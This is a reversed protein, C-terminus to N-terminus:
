VAGPVPEARWRAVTRRLQFYAIIGPVTPLWFAFARYTLVSVLALSSPVGFALCTGIMGGDVGGVGGPLPLLNGLMGVFYIMVLVAIPPPSGFAHFSAWLVGIQTAWYLAAGGVAKDPHRAHQAAHRIGASATAPVTAFRSLTRSVRGGKGKDHWAQMRRQLDTPTLAVLGGLTLAVIGFIAPVVTVGFPAEGPFIGARLGLGFVVLAAVYMAYQVAIFTITRDAVMGRSMGSRRMAWAQLALGGAGAAAFLRTAALAAMTVQYAEWATLRRPAGPGFVGVFQVVYGGFSAIVFAAAAGLWWPDGDEIRKWTDELGSIQPLVFVFFAVVSIVFLVGFAVMKRSIHVRPMEEDDLAERELEVLAEESWPKLDQDRRADHVRAEDSM